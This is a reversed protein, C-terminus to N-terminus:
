RESVVTTNLDGYWYNTAYYDVTGNHWSLMELDFQFRSSFPIVDLVRTRLFANFGHSSEEDARPAGGYPTLFPVVPAWSCNFYDETGTGMFSPFIDDDVFIKEDGEGYWDVAHNNLSLLDGVYVGRGCITIDNWDLNQDSDYDPSVPIGEECKHTAHFYLSNDTWNYSDTVAALVVHVVKDSTNRVSLSASSRYPMPFRCKVRGGNNSLWWGEVDPAGIGAGAFHALPANVTETGDFVASLSLAEVNDTKVDLLTIENATSDPEPLWIELTQGPNLYTEMSTPSGNVKSTGALAAGVEQIKGELSKAEKLTFTKVATGEAYKRYGIHYYRPIKVTIDPEEFTIRCSQAYPVPLFFTNGGVGEMAPDYHTHTLSLAEPLDMPFRKMDYAPIEIQPKEAGDLYIRITGFKEKTTMWIRTVAGPGELDCMVKEYRGAVTDLREYGAGDDNAWWGPEGPGTTRRDYSSVQAQKYEITPYYTVANRDVMEDLLTELTVDYSEQTGGSCAMCCLAISILIITKKM